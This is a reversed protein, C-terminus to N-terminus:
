LLFLGLDPKLQNLFSELEFILKYLIYQYFLFSIFKVVSSKSSNQAYKLRLLAAM